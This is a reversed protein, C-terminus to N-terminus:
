HFMKITTQSPFNILNLILDEQKPFTYKVHSNKETATGRERRAHYCFHSLFTTNKPRKERCPVQRLVGEQLLPTVPKPAVKGVPCQAFAGPRSM